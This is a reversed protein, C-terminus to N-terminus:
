GHDVEVRGGVFEAFEGLGVEGVEDGGPVGFGGLPLGGRGLGAVVGHPRAALPDLGGGEGVGGLFPGGGLAVAAVAGGREEVLLEAEVGGRFGGGLEGGDLCPEVAHNGAAERGGGAVPGGSRM